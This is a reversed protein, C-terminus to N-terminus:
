GSVSCSSIREDAERKEARIIARLAQDDELSEHWSVDLFGQTAPYAYRSM